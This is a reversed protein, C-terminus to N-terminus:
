RGLHTQAHLMVIMGPRKGGEGGARRQAVQGYVVVLEAALQGLECLVRQQLGEDEGVVLEPIPPEAQLRFRM